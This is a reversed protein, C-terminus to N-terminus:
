CSGRRGLTPKKEHKLLTVRRSGDGGVEGRSSRPSFPQPRAGHLRDLPGAEPLVHFVARDLVDAESLELRAAVPARACVAELIRIRGSSGRMGARGAEARSGSRGELPAGCESCAVNEVPRPRGRKAAAKRWCRRATRPATRGRKARERRIRRTGAGIVFGGTGSRRGGEIARVRSSRHDLPVGGGEQQDHRHPRTAPCAIM